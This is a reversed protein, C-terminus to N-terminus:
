FVRRGVIIVDNPMLPFDKIKGKEIDALNVKTIEEKGGITRKITVKGKSGFRNLGGAMLVAQYVTMGDMYVLPKATMVEGSVFVKGEERTKVFIVDNSTVPTKDSLLASAKVTIVNSGEPGTRTITIDGATATLGGAEAVKDLLTESGKMYYRGPSKVEGLITVWQSRFERVSVIVVPQRLIKQEILSNKILEAIRSTTLGEVKLEGLLGYTIAGKESVTVMDRSLDSEGPVEIRLVDLKGVRYEEQFTMALAIRAGMLATLLLNPLRRTM